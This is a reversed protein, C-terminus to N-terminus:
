RWLFGPQGWCTTYLLKDQTGYPCCEALFFTVVQCTLANMHVTKM